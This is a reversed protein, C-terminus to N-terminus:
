WMKLSFKIIRYEHDNHAIGKRDVRGDM